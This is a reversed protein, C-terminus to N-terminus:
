ATLPRASGEISRFQEYNFGAMRETSELPSTYLLARAPWVPRGPLPETVGRVVLAWIKSRGEKHLYYVRTNGEIAVLNTGWEEFVPPTIVSVQGDGFLVAAPVFFPLGFKEYLACLHSMQSFKFTRVRRVAMQVRGLSVEELNITVGPPGYQWVGEKLRAVIDEAPHDRLSCRDTVNPAGNFENNLRQKIIKILPRHHIGTYATGYSAHQTKSPNLIFAAERYDDPRTLLFGYFPLETREITAVGLGALLKRRQAERAVTEAPGNSPEVLVKLFSGAERWALITPFLQWFWRTDSMAVFLGTGPALAEQVLEALFNDEDAYWTVAELRPRLHLAEDRIFHLMADRGNDILQALQKDTINFDTARVDGTPISVINVDPQM